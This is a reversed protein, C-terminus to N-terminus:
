KNAKKAKRSKLEKLDKRLRQLEKRFDDLSDEMAEDSTAGHGFHLEKAHNQHERDGRIKKVFVNAKSELKKGKKRASLLDVTGDLRIEDVVVNHDSDHDTDLVIVQGNARIIKKSHEGGHAHINGDTKLEIVVNQPEGVKDIVLHKGSETTFEIVKQNSSKNLARKEIHIGHGGNGRIEIKKRFKKGTQKASNTADLQDALQRLKNAISHRDVDGSEQSQVIEILHKHLNNADVESEDDDNKIVVIEHDGGQKSLLEHLHVNHKASLKNVLEKRIVNGSKKGHLIQVMHKHLDKSVDGGKGDSDIVVIEHNGDGSLLEHLKINHKALIKKAANQSSVDGEQVVIVEVNGDSHSHNEHEHAEHDHDHDDDEQMVTAVPVTVASNAVSGYGILLGVSAVM